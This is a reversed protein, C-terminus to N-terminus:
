ALQDLYIQLDQTPMANIIKMDEESYENLLLGLVQSHAEIMNSKIPKFLIARTNGNQLYLRMKSIVEPLGVKLADDVKAMIEAVKEPMAFAQERLTRGGLLLSSSETSTESGSRKFGNASSTVKVATVKTLFSLLPEVTMKTVSMIFQECTAKLDKELDKKADVHSETVRPSLRALSVGSTLSLFSAQGRMIRKLHDLLHSFDMERVTVAFEIDFPAIQERLILLHKILFLQGDLASAKRSIMKSARQISTSCVGVAEQALGTFIGTDVCRYLKSLCALTRELPLYWLAYADRGDEEETAGVSEMAQQLMKPYDLDEPSPMYNAIEDRMFTQARFTLREQVDALIRLITPRLGAATEGRRQLQEDLIEAKLIDVLECLLDMDAEHIFRPRLSDYLVTCLPDILPALNNSDASSAPFFHDFLQHELQCVQMLYGCGSRTLAPLTEKQSYDKIRQQVVGMVLSLRQECYLTHCDQLLQAYERRGARAEMEEMLAKLEGAAAKFRVYLLSTEAGESITIQSASSSGINEKMASQVQSSANRLVALAHSRVMGLARSQLHRFKKLYIDSHKYQLNSGVYSICEDLRKLLPLFHSSSVSMSPAHFKTQIKELEDFYNLKSRLADAFEILREKELVLRECADHLSKTKTAVARHQVQLDDFLSLTSDVQSLLSDCTELHLTLATVYQRFKEETESKMASELDSHWKYFQHSNILALEGSGGDLLPTDSPTAIEQRKTGQVHAPLPRDAAVHALLTVAALQDESLPANQDWTSQFNYGKNVAAPRSAGDSPSFSSGRPMGGQTLAAPMGRPAATAM